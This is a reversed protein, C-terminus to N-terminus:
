FNIEFVNLLMFNCIKAFTVLLYSVQPKKTKIIIM